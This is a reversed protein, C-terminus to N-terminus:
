NPQALVFLARYSNHMKKKLDILATCYNPLNAEVLMVRETKTILSSLPPIGTRLNM